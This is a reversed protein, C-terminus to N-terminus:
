KQAQAWVVEFTATIGFKDKFNKDYHENALSLLEKGVFMQKSISNAGIDKIWKMLRVMDAFHVKIIEHEVKINAFGAQRLTQKIEEKAYLRRINATTGSAGRMRAAEELSIFLEKFTEQGFMTLHVQGKDKLSRHISQFCNTLSSAWQLSLNSVVLDFSDEKFPLNLANAQVLQLDEYQTKAVELMGDAFDIGVIKSEPFYFKLKSTLWGTGMGIDLIFENAELPIVKKILERGIEKHLSTLLDYEYAADSFAKRIKKDIFDLLM